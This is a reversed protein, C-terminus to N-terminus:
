DHSGNGNTHGAFEGIQDDLEALLREIRNQVAIERSAGSGRRAEAAEEGEPDGRSTDTSLTQDLREAAERERKQDQLIEQFDRGRSGALESWTTLKLRLELAAAQLDKVPDVWPWGRPLWNAESWDAANMSDLELAGSTLAWQLWVPYIREHLHEIVKTQRRRWTDREALLGARISSFNVDELDGSLVNYSAGLGVSFRRVMAKQFEAFATTPHTPDVSQFQYGLPVTRYVGPELDMEFDDDQSESEIRPELISEPDRTFFGGKSAAVRAAVVEAEEYGDLMKQTMLVPAFRTYGRTQGPRYRDYLHIIQDAPVRRRRKDRHESPHHDWIHYAVPRGRRDIEVGMRIENRGNGAQRNLTEDLQDPDLPHLTFWFRNGRFGPIMQILAEGDQEWSRVGLAQIDLWSMRGDASANGPKCWEKWAREIRRNVDENLSDDAQQVHAQLRIGQNGIVNDVAYDLYRAAHANNRVLDRARNRLTRLNGKIEQDPSQVASLVWDM